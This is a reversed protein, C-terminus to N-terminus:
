YGYRDYSDLNDDLAAAKVLRQFMRRWERESELWRVHCEVQYNAQALDQKLNKVESELRKIKREEPTM